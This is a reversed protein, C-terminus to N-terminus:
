PQEVRPIGNYPVVVVREMNSQPGLLNLHFLAEGAGYGPTPDLPTGGLLASSIQMVRGDPKFCLGRYDSESQPIIGTPEVASIKVWPHETTFDVDRVFEVPKFGGTVTFNTVNCLTGWGETVIIRGLKPDEAEFVQVRYARNRSAAQSRAFEIQNVFSDLARALKLHSMGSRISPISIAGLMVIIALVAMAEVLSFGRQVPRIPWRIRKTRLQPTVSGEMLWISGGSIIDAIRM